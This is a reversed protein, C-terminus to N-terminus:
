DLGFEELWRRSEDDSLGRFKQQPEGPRRPRPQQAALLADIFDESRVAQCRRRRAAARIRRDTSVVVLRRPATNEAILDIIHEDAEDRGGFIIRARAAVVQPQRPGRPARGDFVVTVDQDALKELMSVLQQRDDCAEVKALAHLLNNGDVLIPM